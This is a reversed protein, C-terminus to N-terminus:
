EKKNDRHLRNIHAQLKICKRELREIEDQVMNFKQFLSKHPSDDHFKILFQRIAICYRDLHPEM